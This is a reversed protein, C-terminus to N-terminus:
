FPFSSNPHTLACIVSWLSSYLKSIEEHETFTGFSPAGCMIKSPPLPMHIVSEWSIISYSIMLLLTLHSYFLIPTMMPMTKDPVDHMIIFIIIALCLIANLFIISHVHSVGPLHLIVSSPHSLFLKLLLTWCVNSSNLWMSPYVMYYRICYDLKSTILVHVLLQAGDFALHKRILSIKRLHYFASKCMATVQPVM